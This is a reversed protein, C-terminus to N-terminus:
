DGEVWWRHRCVGVKNDDTLRLLMGQRVGGFGFRGLTVLEDKFWRGVVDSGAEGELM